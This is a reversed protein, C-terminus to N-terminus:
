KFLPGEFFIGLTCREGSLVKTVEHWIFSPFILLSGRNRMMDKVEKCSPQQYKYLTFDGGTYTKPDSLMIVCTLKRNAYQLDGTYGDTHWSTFGDKKYQLFAIDINLPSVKHLDFNYTKKNVAVVKSVIKRVISLPLVGTLESRYSYRGEDDGFAELKVPQVMGVKIIENCEDETLFKDIVEIARLPKKM